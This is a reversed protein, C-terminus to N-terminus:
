ASAVRVLMKGFNKGQLLGLFSAPARELGDAIDERYKLRGSRVWEAADRLFDPQKAAFDSVIFGRLLLRKRLVSVIDPGPMESTASYQAIVGCVPIRAFDNLLPWVTHQVAGGVNEFYVDIGNPCAAALRQAFDPARHDVCDDFGLEEAVFRCKEAGGAIGVARAGKIKAIQGVVSGVAGSAAAVVVTEGPKPQGIELLGVYATMGPMGLVGLATSIPAAKPDLKRLGAGSSLAYEQWGGFGLVVDGVAYKPNRSKVIEGVTGGVMPEGVAAPKAYSKAASMRGRMYPDLSLYLIRMLVEGEGPDPMPREVLEFNELGPPGEPRSQLLIQRNVRATM